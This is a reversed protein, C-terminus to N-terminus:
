ITKQVVGKLLNLAKDTMSESESYLDPYHRKLTYDVLTELAEQDRRAAFYEFTGVRIHSAAVRVLIAGEHIKERYVNEGTGIIALSRTSPIGLYHMSESVLYERIVSSLTARGDGNRSFATEGSGKLQIDRRKGNTDIIEGLLIARGDGLQPVFNGFQHGAYAQAIPESGEAITNGALINIGEESRLFDIDLGLEEALPENLEILTPKPVKTPNIKQYFREPLKVYTNDFKFSMITEMQTQLPNSKLILIM